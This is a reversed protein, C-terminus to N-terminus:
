GKIAEQLVINAINGAVSLGGGGHEVMVTFAYPHEPDDLFGVFWAHSTGDGVEATGSKACLSLGPFNWEGYNNVVNYSMFDRMEGATASGMLRTRSGDSGILIHPEVAEGGNAIAAALRMMAYPSVLDNFQGIGSWALGPSGDVDKDFRGAATSIGDFELQELLGFDSAYEELTDAGLELSLEAFACNCSNAFAQEITQTGHIGSCNIAVGAVEVSGPCWFSREYLDPINEIAASLTIIKFVSGPTFTSSICRNLYVGDYFEGTLDPVNLPDYSPSSTMCIIEGTTYDCIIVAGKRTGLANYAAANLASDITIHLEGGGSDTLGTVPNYGVLEDAFQTMVGTGINGSMDGVAHLCAARVIPDQAYIRQGDAYGALIVGKRDYVTGTKPVGNQYITQNATFTAWDSGDTLFRAVYVGLGAVVFISLLLAAFARNKIKKM